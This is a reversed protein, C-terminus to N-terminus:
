PVCSSNTWPSFFIVVAFAAGYKGIEGGSDEGEGEEDAGLLDIAERDEKDEEGERRSPGRRQAITLNKEHVFIFFYM